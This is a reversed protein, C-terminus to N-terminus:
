RGFDGTKEGGIHEAAPRPKTAPQINESDFGSGDTLAAGAVRNRIALAFGAAFLGALAAIAFAAHYSHQQIM